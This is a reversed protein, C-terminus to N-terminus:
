RRTLASALHRIESEVNEGDALTEAIEQRFLDRYRKRLRHVAVKLAGESTAMEAALTAYSTDSHALLFVKLRDFHEVRGHQVFESRLRDVVRELVSLAWRREFVREPEPNNPTTLAVPLPSSKTRMPPQVASRGLAM